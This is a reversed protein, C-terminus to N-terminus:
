VVEQAGPALEGPALRSRVPGPALRAHLAAEVRRYEADIADIAAAAKEAAGTRALAELERCLSSLVAAGVNASESKMTHSACQLRKADGRAAAEALDQLLRPASELFLTIVRRVIDPHGDRQLRSLADLVKDEIPAPESPDGDREPPQPGAAVVASRVPPASALWRALMARIQDPTFPKTMYDDMGAALCRERDGTVAIATLAVIPTRRGSQAERRRIEAAAEFGDIEPMQCDMFILAFDGEAHRL